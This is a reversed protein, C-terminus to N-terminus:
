SIIMIMALLKAFDKSTGAMNTNDLQYTGTTLVIYGSWLDQDKDTVTNSPQSGGVYNIQGTSYLFWGTLQTPRETFPQGFDIKAGSTSVM